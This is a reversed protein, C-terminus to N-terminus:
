AARFITTRFDVQVNSWPLGKRMRKYQNVLSVKTTHSLNKKLIQLLLKQSEAAGLCTVWPNHSAWDFRVKSLSIQIRKLSTAIQVLNNIGIHQVLESLGDEFSTFLQISRMSQMCHPALVVKTLQGTRKNGILHHVSRQHVSRPVHSAIYARLEEYIQRCTFLVECFEQYQGYHDKRIFHNELINGDELLTVSIHRDAVVHKYIHERIEAPIRLLPSPNVSVTSTNFPPQPQRSSDQHDLM